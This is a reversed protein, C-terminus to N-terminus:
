SAGGAKAGSGRYWRALRTPSVGSHFATLLVANIALQRVPGRRTFRRASTTVWAPLRVMTGTRALRMALDVDEFLPQSHFGGASHYASRTCFLSQDGLFSVPHDCASLHALLSFVPHAADFRLRFGGGVVGPQALAREIVRGADSPLRTDAHLFVFRDHRSHEVGLRLQAGRSACPADVWQVGETQARERIEDPEECAVVVIQAAPLVGRAHRWAELLAEGERYTPIVLSFGEGTAM